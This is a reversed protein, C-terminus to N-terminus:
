RDYACRVFFLQSVAILIARLRRLRFIIVFHCSIEASFAKKAKVALFLQQKAVLGDFGNLVGSISATECSIQM